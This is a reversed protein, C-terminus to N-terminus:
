AAGASVACTPSPTVSGTPATPRWECEHHAITIRSHTSAVTNAEIAKAWMWTDIASSTQGGAPATSGGHGQASPDDSNNSAPEASNNHACDRTPFPPACVPNRSAMSAAIPQTAADNASSRPLWRCTPRDGLAVAQPAVTAASSAQCPRCAATASEMPVYTNAREHLPM